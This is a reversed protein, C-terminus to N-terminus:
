ITSQNIAAPADEFEDDEEDEREKREGEEGSEDRSQGNTFDKGGGSGRLFRKFLRLLLILFEQSLAGKTMVAKLDLEKLFITDYLYRAGGFMVFFQTWTQAMEADIRSLKKQKRGTEAGSTHADEEGTSSLSEVIQLTYLLKLVGSMGLSSASGAAASSSPRSTDGEGLFIERWPVDPTSAPGAALEVSTIKIGKRDKVTKLIGGLTRIQEMITENVPLRCLLQWANQVVDEQESSLLRFFVQFNKAESSLARRPEKQFEDLSADDPSLHSITSSNERYDRTDDAPADLM